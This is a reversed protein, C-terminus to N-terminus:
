EDHAGQHGLDNGRTTPAPEEVQEQRDAGEKREAVEDVPDRDQLGTTVGSDAQCLAPHERREATQGEHAQDPKSDFQGTNDSAGPPRGCRSPDGLRESRQGPTATEM